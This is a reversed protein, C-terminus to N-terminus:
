LPAKFMLNSASSHALPLEKHLAESGKVCVEDSSLWPRPSRATSTCNYLCICIELYKMGESDM